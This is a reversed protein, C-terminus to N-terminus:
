EKSVCSTVFELPVDMRVATEKLTLGSQLFRKVVSKLPEAVEIIHGDLDYFRIVRQGWRHELLPHVLSINPFLKLKKVFADFNDDEFYLETANNQFHIEHVDKHLFQSWSDLTQLAIGGTLTVNAGYDAVTELGLVDHYFTKAQEINKVALLTCCYNM